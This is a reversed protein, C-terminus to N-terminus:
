RVHAPLPAPARAYCLCPCCETACCPRVVAVPLLARWANGSLAVAAARAVRVHRWVCVCLWGTGSGACVPEPPVPRSRSCLSVAHCHVGAVPLM